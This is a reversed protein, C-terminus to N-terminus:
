RAGKAAPKAPETVLAWTGEGAKESVEESGDERKCTYTARFTLKGGPDFTRTDLATCNRGPISGETRTTDGKRTGSAYGQEIEVKVREKDFRWTSVFRTKPADAFWATVKVVASPPVAASAWHSDLAIGFRDLMADLEALHERGAEGSKMLAVRVQDIV